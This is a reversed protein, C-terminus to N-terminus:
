RLGSISRFAPDVETLMCALAFEESRRPAAGVLVRGFDPLEHNPAEYGAFDVDFTLGAEPDRGHAIMTDAVGAGLAEPLVRFFEVVGAAAATLSTFLAKLM